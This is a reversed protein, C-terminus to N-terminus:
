PIFFKLVSKRNKSDLVELYYYGTKLGYGALDLEYRNNGQHKIGDNKEATKARGENTVGVKMEKHRSNYISYSLGESAYPEDFQFFIRENYAVYYAADYEKKLVVYKIDPKKNEVPIVFSWVDTKNVMVNNSFKQVQWAYSKGEKLEVADSPYAVSHTVLFSKSFVAPNSFVAQEASQDKRIEAVVIKYYENRALASFPESHTWTLVPLKTDLTDGDYPVVLNLFDDMASAFDECLIDGDEGNSM